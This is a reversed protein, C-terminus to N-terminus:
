SRTDANGVIAELAALYEEAVRDADFERVKKRNADGLRRSLDTDTLIRALGVALAQPDHPPVFLAHTGEVLHDAPGRLPTTVIPLGTEMAELIVTPFGENHSTPLAFVDASRYLGVLEAGEVYGPLEVSDAVGLDTVLERLRADEPGDGALVLRCSVAEQVLPLARVLEFVGKTTMLRAVCLITKRGDVPRREAVTGESLAPRPNRVVSVQSGPNFAQWEAREERSLVLVGDARALLAATVRKFARSGPAILRTSQSGHFQLVVVKSRPLLCVLALDRTLTLWDHATKVVVVPFGGRVVARRAFAVDRARGLVKAPLREGEVRRGWPLQEVECGLRRLADVLLPTHKP